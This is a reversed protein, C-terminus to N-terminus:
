LLYLFNIKWFLYKNFEDFNVGEHTPIGRLVRHVREGFDGFDRSPENKDSPHWPSGSSGTGRLGRLGRLGPAPNMKIVIVQNVVKVKLNVRTQTQNVLNM